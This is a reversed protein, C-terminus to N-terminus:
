QWLIGEEIIRKHILMQFMENGIESLSKIGMKHELRWLEMMEEPIDDWKNGKNEM